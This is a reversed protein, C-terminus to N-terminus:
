ALFYQVCLGCGGYAAPIMAVQWVAAAMDAPCCHPTARLLRGPLLGLLM